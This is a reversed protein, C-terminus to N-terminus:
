FMFETKNANVYFGIDGAAQELSPLHSEVLAPTNEPLTFDDVYDADSM